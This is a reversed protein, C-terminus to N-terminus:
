RRFLAPNHLADLRPMYTLFEWGQRGLENLPKELSMPAAGAEFYVVRYEVRRFQQAETRRVAVGVGVGALFAALSLAVVATRKM